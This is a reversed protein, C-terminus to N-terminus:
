SCEIMTYSLILATDLIELPHIGVRFFQPFFGPNSPLYSKFYDYHFCIKM